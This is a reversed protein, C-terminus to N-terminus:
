NTQEDTEGRSFTASQTTQIGNWPRVRVHRGFDTDILRSAILKAIASSTPYTESRDVGKYVNIYSPFILKISFIENFEIRITRYSALPNTLCSEVVLCFGILKLSRRPFYKM